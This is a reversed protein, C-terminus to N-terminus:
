HIPSRSSMWCTIRDMMLAHFPVQHLIGDPVIVLAEEAYEDELAREKLQTHLPEILERYLFALIRQTSKLLLPMHRQPFDSGVRFRDWQTNLRILLDQV